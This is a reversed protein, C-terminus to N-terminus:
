TKSECNNLYEEIESYFYGVCGPSIQRRKPFKGARELRWVTTLSMGTIESVQASRLVIPKNKHVSTKM